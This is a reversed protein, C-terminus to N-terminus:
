SFHTSKFSSIKYKLLYTKLDEIGQDKKALAVYGDPRILYFSNQELGIKGINPNWDFQHLELQVTDAFSCLAESAEGYVHIQWDISQLPKYNDIGTKKKIWPLRDGGKVKGAMGSSLESNRYQISTQSVTKFAGKRAFSFGLLFPMIYPFFLTRLLLGRTHRGVINTFAKDTTSILKRAFELRESEYSNLIDPEAKGKLVAALKWSLNIADGIGTNMGQGGAPSHIHGADGALFARGQNFHESVRHHVRYTSFWNVETAMLNIKKEISPSLDEYTIIDKDNFEKPVIGIIRKMGKERVPMYSFFGEEDMYMYMDGMSSEHNDAQIDGVFFLQEYTGGPFGVDMGERVTSHAGDCGCIYDFQAEEIKGDKKIFSQICEGNDIFSELETNWEITIGADNLQEVLLKEHVDQPLSLVYPFPSLDEGLDSLNLEAKDENGERLHLKSLPIGQSVIKESFGLQQYHELIRAHVVLARSAEGTGARKEIIRFPIEQKKLSLAMVLGTPGAGVILVQNKM